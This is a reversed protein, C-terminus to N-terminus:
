RLAFPVHSPHLQKETSKLKTEYWVHMYTCIFPQIYTSSEICIHNQNAICKKVNRYMRRANISVRDFVPKAIKTKLSTM